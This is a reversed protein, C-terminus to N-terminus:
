LRPVTHKLLCFVNSGLTNSKPTKTTRIYECMIIEFNQLEHISACTKSIVDPKLSKLSYANSATIGLIRTVYIHNPIQLM